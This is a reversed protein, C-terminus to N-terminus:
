ELPKVIMNKLFEKRSLPPDSDEIPKGFTLKPYIRASPNIKVDCLAPGDYNLIREIGEKLESHNRITETKRFGHVEALKRLNPIFFSDPTSAHHRAKLWIEQTQKIMGYGENNMIFLKVPLNHKAITALDQENMMLGGDGIIGIIQCNQKAFAAGITAPIGYGMPSHNFSTFLRQGNKVKFGQMGWTVNCGAEPIIIDGESCKESLADFFVYPDVNEKELFYKELCIPYRAKWDKVKTTWEEINRMKVSDLRKNFSEFFDNLNYNILEEIHPLGRANYKELEAKDIDVVVKKADRAFTNLNSGTMHTDLRTGLALIFDANQVTFNGPRNATVGFDRVSLPYNEPFLDLAGWTLAIPIGLKEVAKKTQEYTRSMRIGAGLIIVPRKASELLNYTSDIQRELESRCKKEARSKYGRLKEPEIEARQIDDPLDILVPGPRGSKALYVAKELEYKIDEARTVLKAYKTNPLFTKVTDIEQFGVQRSKNKGRLQSTPVQGTISLTPISDFYSCCIGTLLNTAGPGSTTIAVGLNDTIRSYADAAMASAQEHHNCVYEIHKNRGISDMVHVICGGTVGFVHMVKEKVLFEAIYDSLKM